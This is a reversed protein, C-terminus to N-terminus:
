SVSGYSDLTKSVNQGSPDNCTYEGYLLTGWYNVGWIIINVMSYVRTYLYEGNLVSGKDHHKNNLLSGAYDPERDGWHEIYEGYWPTVM